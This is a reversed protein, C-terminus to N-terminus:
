DARRLVEAALGHWRCPHGVWSAGFAAALGPWPGLALPWPGWGKIGEHSGGRHPGHKLAAVVMGPEVLAVALGM